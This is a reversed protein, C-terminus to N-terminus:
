RVDSVRHTRFREKQREVSERVGEESIAHRTGGGWQVLNNGKGGPINNIHSVFLCGGASEVFEPGLEEGEKPDRGAALREGDEDYIVREKESTATGYAAGGHDTALREDLRM